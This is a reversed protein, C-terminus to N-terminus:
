TPPSSAVCVAPPRTCRRSRWFRSSPSSTIPRRSGYRPTTSGVSRSRCGSRSSWASSRSCSGPRYGSTGSCSRSSSETLNAPHESPRTGFHAVERAQADPKSSVVRLNAGAVENLARAEEVTLTDNRRVDVEGGLESLYQVLNYTFSDYNDIILLM